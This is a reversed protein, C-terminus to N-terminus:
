RINTITLRITITIFGFQKLFCLEKDKNTSIGLYSLLVPGFHLISLLSTGHSLHMSSAQQTSWALKLM